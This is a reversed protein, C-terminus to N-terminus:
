NENTGYSVTGYDVSGDYYEVIVSAIRVKAVTIGANSVKAWYSYTTEGVSMSMTFSENQQIPGTKQFTATYVVDDVSNYYKLVVTMYNITKGTLNQADFSAEIFERRYNDKTEEWKLSVEDGFLDRIDVSFDDSCRTCIGENNVNHGYADTYEESYSDDCYDCTYIKLGPNLCDADQYVYSYSHEGTAPIIEQQVLIEECVSCREGRGLGTDVCTAPVESLYSIQHGLAPIAKQQQSESSYGCRSCETGSTLGAETCTAAYGEIIMWDHKLKQIEEQAVLVESCLSCVKGETLGAETCTAPTGAVISETHALQPIVEQVALVESCVSCSKGDTLGSESCTAPTGVVVEEIHGTAAIEKQEVLVVSCVSCVKGESIGSETCTALKGPVIKETHGLADIFEEYGHECNKCQYKGIGSAECTPNEQSVLYFDHGKPEGSLKGCLTCEKQETCTASKWNHDCSDNDCAFLSLTAILLSVFILIKSFKM